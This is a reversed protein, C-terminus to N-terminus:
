DILRAAADCGPWRPGDASAYAARIPNDLNHLWMTRSAATAGLEANKGSFLEHCCIRGDLQAGDHREESGAHDGNREKALESKPRHQAVERNSQSDPRKAGAEEGIRHGNQM